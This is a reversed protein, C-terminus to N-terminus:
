GSTSRTIILLIGGSLLNTSFCEFIIQLLTTNCSYGRERKIKFVLHGVVPIQFFVLWCKGQNPLKGNAFYNRQFARTYLSINRSLIYRDYLNESTDPMLNKPNIVFQQTPLMSIAIWYAGVTPEVRTVSAAIIVYETINPPLLPSSFQVGDNSSINEVTAQHDYEYV